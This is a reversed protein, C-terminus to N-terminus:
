EPLPITRIASQGVRPKHLNQLLQKKKEFTWMKSLFLQGKGLESQAISPYPPDHNLLYSASRLYLDHAHKMVKLHIADLDDAEDIKTQESSIINGSDIGASIWMITNGILHWQGNAICWNTCNPGGKVYPSLGTHLNMIGVKLPLSVLPQKILSTGSVIVLEAGMKETFEKVEPDNINDVELIPIAPPVDKRQRYYQQVQSWANDIKGFCIKDIARNLFIKWVRKTSQAVKKDIVIGAVDFESAFRSALAWHNPADGIWCVIQSM